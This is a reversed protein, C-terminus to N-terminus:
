SYTGLIMSRVNTEVQMNLMNKINVENMEFETIANDPDSKFKATVAPNSNMELVLDVLEKNM